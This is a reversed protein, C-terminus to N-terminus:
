PTQDASVDSDLTTTVTDGGGAGDAPADAYHAARPHLEYGGGDVPRVWGYQSLTELVATVRAAKPRQGPMRRHPEGRPPLPARGGPRAPAPPPPRPPGRRHGVTGGQLARHLVGHTQGGRGDPRRRDSAALRGGTPARRPAARRAPAHHREAQQGVRAHRASHRR